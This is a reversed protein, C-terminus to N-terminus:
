VLYQHILQLQGGEVVAPDASPAHNQTDLLYYSEGAGAGLLSSVDIVGSAEEDQTLFNAGGAQFRSPDHVAIQSLADTAPDYQWVKGLLANNGVDELLTLKGDASVTLNDFMQQGESGNLLLKITGGLEPKSSDVFDMAWLRSTSGVSATTVFYYRNPNVTDWAGDEPRLFSTVGHADGEAQIQAGTKGSVDGFDYLTFASQEDAGLPTGGTKEINATAELESVHVGYLSGGTLGAKDLISGSAKKDGAYFYVQGPTSDDNLAVVTKAGAYPNALANEYSMNGFAAVEYAKGADAGSAVHAFAKGEVGTEEGNLYIRGGDYGLGTAADYFAGVAPLDASCFRGYAYGNGLAASHEVWSQTTADYTYVSTDLDHGSVVQHTKADIVWSSVFAGKAGSAHVVGSTNGLEHNMLLTFTGDGNDFAGLGDPIGAMKYGGVTDGATLLSQVSVTPDVSVLYPTTTTSPGTSATSVIFQDATLSAKAIGTLTIKNGSGFDVVTDKGAQTALALVAAASGYGLASVDIRDDAKLDTITDAGTTGRFVFTDAGAGGTLRDDGEGGALIDRGAGGDLKDNGAEGALGDDGDGGVVQDNGAGGKMLDNGLGGTMTDNGVGGSVFDVGDGGDLRDDGAGGVVVDDGAGAFATDNGDGGDLADNGAGGALADNGAGGDLRDAGDDGNLRDDGDGGIVVDDGAGAFITDNGLGGDIRNAGVNGGIANDLENGTADIAATGTLVLNEINAGLAFSVSSRVIDLGTDAGEVVVDGANDVYYSDNGAGGELRDAGLGGDLSDNGAGALVVDNGAGATIRDNGDGGDIQDVGDGGDLRDDGAGGVVVDDGAGAFATDNGDGGDLADNGAGGALADNGAGGDLRDAGDDGNLRDDGDGGIVVDDGAGAFITDNGLGGDIRNAGVNGGIANDLENGTADIAATGTLVLNEINAGLAFSVSSRVIDLGTDAGEVVVDGANDVYYSDNGAGGELRDAGLGGDLSDNGAGALVVDNGAGATIRDNGDGGTLKDAGNGGLIVDNGAGGDVVANGIAGAVLKDDGATGIVAANDFVTDAKLSLNQIRQDQAAPTDAVGYATAATGHVETMYTEFAAQEGMANAPLNAAATFDLSRDLATGLTGDALLYRFNDALFTGDAAKMTKIPYGDGGNATFNLAVVSIKAPAGALISGDDAVLAVIKGSADILAIDSVRSGAPKTPDYSFKVGGLQPFGGNGPALGAGYELIKKLGEANTDFVMLKNDFRLANEVDLRSVNGAATGTTNAIKGGDEDIMGISARLGGGNKLSVMPVSGVTGKAAHINADATIDGLNTEEARGYVRDGELYVNSFGFKAGDKAVVVANVADAITKVATGTTSGAIITAASDTTGYVQQLTAENSAYAGNITASDAVGALIPKGAADLVIKGNQDFEIVLRSLYSYETDTTVILTKNGDKDTAVQPYGDAFTADHGNFAGATDTADGLREHGGGAVMVDVGSLMPALLKNREVTDLQDVMVIKDIGAARLADVSNQVYVAIEQLDDTAANGDDKPKTGNPSTKSLLEPTTAGVIGIKEGNVTVVAYPAIKAKITSAEAGAIAGATGGLSTDARGKLSSDASFDLNSTIFPFQAGAWAGSGAIASSVVSSGLDFEHNGLASAQVGLANMIAIDPRGLAAAGIVPNLSPDAGAVLWPGPIWTDGEALVLTNAEQAKFKQVMAGMIPATQDALVGAEGYLSLVQLRFNPAVMEIRTVLPDHDSTQDAFDANIRVVDFEAKTALANSVLVHDLAESNGEFVYDTQESAPLTEALDHLVATGGATYTATADITDATPVHYNTVTAEGRLVTMPQEFGFENLDGSVVIKAKANGALVGDVFGNIAQAQAARQVEGANLPTADNGMLVGSGGKSTSHVNIVTVAEDGFHFTAVLPLRSGYFPNDINTAQDTSQGVGVASGDAAITKISGAELSVRDDRYLFANRINGNPQGGVAGGVVFPNDVWAYHASSGAASALANVKDVLTQLTVDAATVSSAEAGDNDQVEQLSVIDPAKLTSFIQAAITDFKGNGLDDDVNSTSKNAVLAVNELKPDLNEANYSAITLHRDDGVLATTEKALPSAQTVTFAKTPMVEYNGFAYGVVGEIDSFQAGTAVQPDAVGALVGTDIDIQIREPNFDGGVADTNGFDARGGSIALGGRATVGTAGEVVTYIEGYSNTPSVATPTDIVVKMGELSEWFAVGAALDAAPPTLGGVGGIEVPTVTTPAAGLDVVSTVSTIETLSLSNLYAGSPTFEAVTGKVEVYAGVTPLTGTPRYVFVGDSTTADGDGFADQIWFGKSGNTDVATVIGVTTVAQGVLPSANGSGQIDYVHTFDDNTITGTAVAAATDITAAVGAVTAGATDTITLAASKLTLTFAEDAEKVTDGTVDVTVTATTAGAAITGTVIRPLAGGGFDSGDAATSALDMTFSLAGLTGGTREVTFAFATTGGDGEAHTVVKTADAIKVTQTYGAPLAAYLVTTGGVENATVVLDVGTANAAAAVFKTVEPGHDTSTAPRFGVYKADAPDTVDYVMVGGVRELNVFAYTKGGIVGIDVGEPEPGKDDSRADTTGAAQNQNFMTPDFAAIIKEFEGGSEFVKVITGDAKQEFISFGRGGLTYIQDIDGDGDTDGLKSLVNLRNFAADAKLAAANPYATPDLVYSADSLRVSDALGGVRSDGENATVFYSRGGTAFTAIADPQLLGEVDWAGINVVPTGKDSPDFENGALAHDVSGLPLLALPKTASADTLDIVAVADVEQLTVYARTGDASVSIYEPEIDASAAQGPYIAVGAARLLAEAGDLAGFGITTGVVANAAGAALDIITVSGAPNATASVAEAEDAVLIKTGDPTFTVMDPGVGVTVTTLKTGASDWLTVFGKQDAAANAYAVAVVGNKVAISNASGFGPEAAVDITSALSLSGDAGLTLVNVKGGATDLSFVKGSHADFAVSEAIGTAPKFAGIRVLQLSGTGVPAESATAGVHGALSTAPDLIAIGGIERTPAADDNLITATADVASGLAVTATAVPNSVSTLTLSFAENAEVVVDGAVSVTVTASTAGAAITGSFTAPVTGGFDAADSAGAAITGSFSVAGSTGGARVVTFTFDTTGSNGEAKSVTVSAADFQVTQTEVPTDALVTFGTTIQTLAADSGTWNAPNGIAAILQAKTGSTPGSYVVDDWEGGTGGNAAPTAKGRALATQDVVLGTPLATSQSTTADSFANGHISLAYLLTPAGSTGTFAILQDGDTSLSVGNTGVVADNAAAFQATANAYNVVTGATLDSPATWVLAGEGGRFGGTSKWGSDTFFIKQGATVPDLLVFSFNDPNDANMGIIAISGPGLAM